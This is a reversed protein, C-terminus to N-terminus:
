QQRRRHGCAQPLRSDIGGDGAGDCIVFDDDDTTVGLWQTVLKSAFRRGKDLPSLGAEEIEALWAERFQEYSVGETANVTIM